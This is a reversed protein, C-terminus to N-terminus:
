PTIFLLLLLLPPDLRTPDNHELTMDMFLQGLSLESCLATANTSLSISFALWVPFHTSYLHVNQEDRSRNCLLTPKCLHWVTWNGANVQGESLMQLVKKAFIRRPGMQNAASPKEPLRIYQVNM